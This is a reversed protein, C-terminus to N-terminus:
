YRKKPSRPVLEQLFEHKNITGRKGKDFKDMLSRAEKDSVFLGRSEILRRIEQQTVEGSQNIDCVEFANELNFLPNKALKQRLDDALVEVRFHTRWLDKLDMVTIPVFMHEPLAGSFVSSRNLSHRANIMQAYHM